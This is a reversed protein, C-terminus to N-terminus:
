HLLLVAQEELGGARTTTIELITHRAVTYHKFIESGHIDGSKTGTNACIQDL